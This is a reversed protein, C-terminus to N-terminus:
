LGVPTGGGQISEISPSTALRSPRVANSRAVDGLAVASPKIARQQTARDVAILGFKPDYGPLWEYNDLLSWYFYGRVDVGDAMAHHLAVLAGGVFAARRSDDDGAWGNETVLLPAHPHAGLRLPLHRRATSDSWHCSTEPTVCPAWVGRSGDV